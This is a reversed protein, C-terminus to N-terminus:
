RGRSRGVAAAIIRGRGTVENTTLRSAGSVRSRPLRIVEDTKTSQFVGYWVTGTPRPRRKKEDRSASPRAPSEAHVVRVHSSGRRFGFRTAYNM